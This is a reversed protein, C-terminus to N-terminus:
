SRTDLTSHEESTCVRLLRYPHGGGPTTREEISGMGHEALQQAIQAAAAMTTCGAVKFRCLDRFPVEGGRREVWQRVGELRRDAPTAHMQAYVSRLHSKFYDDILAVARTMSKHDITEGSAHNSAPSSSMADCVHQALQLILALRACMGELKAWPGRLAPSLEVDSSQAYHGNIWETWVKRARHTMHLVRFGELTFLARIVTEYNQAVEPGLSAETWEVTHAPPSAFLIRHVFGDERGREDGLEELVDPPLCGVVAVFPDMLVTAERRNKRNVIVPAGNWFSLWHQRDAGKGGKYQDMAHVWATLEDRIFVVGRPNQELLSALAEVTADTSCIQSFPPAEPKAPKNDATRDKNGKWAALEVEYTALEAEYDRKAADYEEGLDHQIAYLPHVVKDLAPSKKSGPESIVATWLRASERWGAKIEVMRTTGIAAGLVGLMPVALFDAPCPLAAAAAEVFTRLAPPLVEIPFPAPTEPIHTPTPEPKELVEAVHHGTYLLRPGWAIAGDLAACGAAFRDCEGQNMLDVQKRNLLADPGSYALIEAYLRRRDKTPARLELRTGDEWTFTHTTDRITHDPINSM